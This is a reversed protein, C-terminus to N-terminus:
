NLQPAFTEFNGFRHWPIVLDPYSQAFREKLADLYNTGHFCYGLKELYERNNKDFIFRSHGYLFLFQQEFNRMIFPDLLIPSKGSVHKACCPYKRILERAIDTSSSNKLILEAMDENWEVGQHQIMQKILAHDNLVITLHDLSLHNAILINKNMAKVIVQEDLTIEKTSMFFAKHSIDLFKLLQEKSSILNSHLLESENVKSTLISEILNSYFPYSKEVWYIARWDNSVSKFISCRSKRINEGARQIATGSTFISTEFLDQRNRFERNLYYFSDGNLEVAKKVFEEDQRLNFPLFKFAAGNNRIAELVIDRNQLIDPHAYYLFLGNEKVRAKMYEPDNRLELSIVELTDIEGPVQDCKNNNKKKRRKTSLRPISARMHPASPDILVTAGGQWWNARNCVADSLTEGKGFIFIGERPIPSRFAWVDSKTPRTCYELPIILSNTFSFLQEEKYWELFLKTQHAFTSKLTGSLISLDLHVVVPDQEEEITTRAEQSPNM